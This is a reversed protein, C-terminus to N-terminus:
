PPMVPFALRPDVPNPNHIRSDRRDWVFAVILGAVLGAVLGSPLVLSKKPSSPKSPTGAPTIINGGSTDALQSTLTGIRVTILHLQNQDSGRIAQDNLRPPSNKPRGRTKPSLDTVAKQLSGAKAQWPK